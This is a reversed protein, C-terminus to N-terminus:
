HVAPDDIPSGDPSDSPSTPAFPIELTVATGGEPAGEVRLRGGALRARERMSILGLGPSEGSPAVGIGVGGDHISLRLLDCAQTLEVEVDKTKAHKAVNQLSEQAIRYITLALNAPLTEFAGEIRLDIHIGTLTEFEGCYERLASALGSYLLAAPHLEHSVRRIGDSLRILRDLIRASQQKANTLDDPIARKLNGMALSLAAIQQNFDDHLERALRKREEEQAVILNESLRHVEEEARTREVLEAELATNSDRLQGEAIRRGTVDELAGAYGLFEGSADFRPVGRDRVWRYEGDHRRLRYDSTFEARAALARQFSETVRARDDPHVHASHYGELPRQFSGFFRALPRNIFGRGEPSAMWLYAPTDNAIARFWAERERLLGTRRNRWVLSAAAAAALFISGAVLVMEWELHKVPSIAEAYDMKCVLYWPSNPIHRVTGFTAVGRYDVRTIPWGADQQAASPLTMDEIGRRQFLPAGPLNRRPSLYVIEQGERRVLYSEATASNGPWAELYPYLFRDPDIDLVLAGLDRVPAAIHMIPRGNELALDSIVSDGHEIAAVVLAAIGAGANRREANGPEVAAGGGPNGRSSYRVSGGRDILSAGSYFFAESLRSAGGSILAADSRTGRGELVRAAAALFADSRLAHGDGVREGRWTAIQKVQMGAVAALDQGADKEARGREVDYYWAAAAIVALVAIVLLAIAGGGFFSAFSRRSDPAGFEYPHGVSDFAPEGAM